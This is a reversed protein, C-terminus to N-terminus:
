TRGDEQPHLPLPLLRHAVPDSLCFLFLLPPIFSESVDPISSPKGLSLSEAVATSSPKVARRPPPPNTRVPFRCSSTARSPNLTYGVHALQALVLTPGYRFVAWMYPYEYGTVSTDLNFFCARICIEPTDTDPPLMAATDAYKLWYWLSM